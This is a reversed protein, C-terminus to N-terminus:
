QSKSTQGTMRLRSDTRMRQIRKSVKEFTVDSHMEFKWIASPDADVPIQEEHEVDLM